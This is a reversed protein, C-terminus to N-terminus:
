IKFKFKITEQLIKLTLWIRFSLKGKDRLERVTKDGLSVYSEKLIVFAYLSQGKIEHPVPVLAVEAIATSLFKLFNYFKM